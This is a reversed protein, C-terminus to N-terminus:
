CFGCHSQRIKMQTPNKEAGENQSKQGSIQNKEVPVRSRDVKAAGELRRGAPHGQGAGKPSQDGESQTNMRSHFKEGSVDDFERETHVINKNKGNEKPIEGNRFFGLEGSKEPADDSGQEEPSKKNKGTDRHDVPEMPENINKAGQEHVRSDLEEFSALGLHLGVLIEEYAKGSFENRDGGMKMFTMEKDALIVSPDAGRKKQDQNGESGGIEDERNVRNGGDKRDCPVRKENQGRIGKGNKPEPREIKGNGAQNFKKGIQIDAQCDNKGKNSDFHENGAVDM